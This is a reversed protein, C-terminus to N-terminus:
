LDDALETSDDTASSSNAPLIEGFRFEFANNTNRIIVEITRMTTFSEFSSDDSASQVQYTWNTFPEDFPEPEAMLAPLTGLKIESIVTAALNGAHTSNRLRDVSNVSSNIGTTVIAATVAFLALGLICELLVAASQAENRRNSRLNM